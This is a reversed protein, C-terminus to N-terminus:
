PAPARKNLKRQQRILNERMELIRDREAVLEPSRHSFQYDSPRIPNSNVFSLELWHNLHPEFTHMLKEVPQGDVLWGKEVRFQSRSQVVSSKHTDWLTGVYGRDTERSFYVANLSHHLQLINLQSVDPESIDLITRQGFPSTYVRTDLLMLLTESNLPFFIQLGPTQLGLVGRHTVNRYHSNYLVLQLM